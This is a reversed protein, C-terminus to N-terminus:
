AAAQFIKPHIKQLRVFSSFRAAVEPVDGFMALRAKPALLELWRLVLDTSPRRYGHEIAILHLRTIGLKAAFDRQSMDPYEAKRLAILDELPGQPPPRERNRVM